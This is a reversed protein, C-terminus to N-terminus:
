TLGHYSKKNYNTIKTMEGFSGSMIEELTFKFWGNSSGIIKYNGLRGGYNYTEYVPGCFYLRNIDNMIITRHPQTIVYKPDFLKINFREKGDICLYDVGIYYEGIKNPEFQIINMESNEVDDFLPTYVDFTYMHDRCYRLLRRLGSILVDEPNLDFDDDLLSM